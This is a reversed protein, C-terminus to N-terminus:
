GIIKKLESYEDIIFDAMQLDKRLFSSTIAIVKLGANKASIVGSISDEIAYGDDSGMKSIGKLYIEPHPKYHTINEAGIVFSFYELLNYYKLVPVISSTYSNSCVGLKYKLSLRKIEEDVSPILKLYSINKLFDVRRKQALSLIKDNSLETVTRLFDESTNGVKKFFDLDSLNLKEKFYNFISRESDVIVGDFDFIVYKM